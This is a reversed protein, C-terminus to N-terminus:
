SAMACTARDTLWTEEAALWIAEELWATALPAESCALEISSVPDMRYDVDPIVLCAASFACCAAASAEAALPAALSPEAAMSCIVPAIALILAEASPVDCIMLSM